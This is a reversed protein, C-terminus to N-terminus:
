ELLMVNERMYEAVQKISTGPGFIAKIGKEKLYPHDEKPIIGGGELPNKAASIGKEASVTRTILGGAPTSNVGTLL